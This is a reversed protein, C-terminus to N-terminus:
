SAMKCELGRRMSRKLTDTWYWDKMTQCQRGFIFDLISNIQPIDNRNFSLCLHKNMSTLYRKIFILVWGGKSITCGTDLRLKLPAFNGNELCFLWFTLKHEVKGVKWVPRCEKLLYFTKCKNTCVIQMLSLKCIKLANWWMQTDPGTLWDTDPTTERLEAWVRTFLQPPRRSNWTNSAFDSIM